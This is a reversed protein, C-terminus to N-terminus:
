KHTDYKTVFCFKPKKRKMMPLCISVFIIIIIRVKVSNTPTNVNVYGLWQSFLALYQKVKYKAM